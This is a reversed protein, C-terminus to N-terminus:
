NDTHRGAQRGQRPATQNPGPCLVAAVVERVELGRPMDRVYWRHAGSLAFPVFFPKYVNCYCTGTGLGWLMTQWLGRRALDLLELQTLDHDTHPGPPAPRTFVTPQVCDNCHVFEVAVTAARM